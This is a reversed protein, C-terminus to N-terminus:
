NGKDAYFTKLYEAVADIEPDIAVIRGQDDLCGHHVPIDAFSDFFIYQEVFPCIISFMDKFTQGLSQFGLISAAPTILFKLM